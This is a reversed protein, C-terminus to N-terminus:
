DNEDEDWELGNIKKWLNFSQRAKEPAKDTLVYRDYEEDIYYWDKNNMWDMCGKYRISVM